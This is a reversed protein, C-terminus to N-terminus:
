VDLEDRWLHPHDSYIPGIHGSPYGDLVGMFGMRMAWDMAYGKKIPVGLYKARPNAQVKPMTPDVIYGDRTSCWGHGLPYAVGDDGTILVVGECYILNCQSAVQFAADYCRSNPFLPTTLDHPRNKFITGFKLSFPQFLKARAIECELDIRLCIGETVFYDKYNMPRHAIGTVM